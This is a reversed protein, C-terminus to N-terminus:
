AVALLWRICDLRSSPSSFCMVLVCIGNDPYIFRKNRTSDCHSIKSLVEFIHIHRYSCHFLYVYVCVYVCVWAVLFIHVVCVYMCVCLGNKSQFYPGPPPPSDCICVTYVNEICMKEWLVRRNTLFLSNFFERYNQGELVDFKVLKGVECGFGSFVCQAVLELCLLVFTSFLDIIFDNLFCVQNIGQQHIGKRTKRILAVWNNVQIMSKKQRACDNRVCSSYCVRNIQVSPAPFVCLSVSGTAQSSSCSFVGFFPRSPVCCGFQLEDYNLRCAM